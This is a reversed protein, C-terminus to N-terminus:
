AEPEDWAGSDENWVKYSGGDDPPEGIPSQWRCSTEKLVWSPFPQIPIFANRTADYTYGKAAPNKRTEGDIWYQKWIDWGSIKKMFNIGMQEHEIGNIDTMLTSDIVTTDEVINNLGIKAFYRKAM